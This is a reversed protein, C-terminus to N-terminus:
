ADAAARRKRAKEPDSGSKHARDPVEVGKKASFRRKAGKEDQRYCIRVGKGDEESFPMVNSLHIPAEKQVRGGAQPNRPDRRLHRTVMNIGQVVVRNRDLLVRLVRGRKGKDEGAIVIVEDEKKIRRM